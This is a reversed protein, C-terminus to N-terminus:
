NTTFTWEMHKGASTTSGKGGSTWDAVVKYVTKPKFPAKPILCWTGVPAIEPNSPKSPTSFHCEVEKKGDKGEFLKMVIDVTEGREDTPNTQITVPYGFVGAEDFSGPPGSPVPDPFENGIFATPVGTQNEYPYVVVFPKDYPAALSQMDMVQFEGEAGWGLRMVGPDTLPLRHYFSGMWTDIGEEFTMGGGGERWVIVSHTGAWHGETTYGEKDAYEEHADPWKKQEPHLTLYHAHLACQESLEPDFKLKWVGQIKDKFAKERIENMYALIELAEKPWANLNEKDIREAIGPLSGLLWDKWKGELDGITMGLAANYLEVTRGTANNSLQKYAPGLLEAEQLFEVISTCKHLDNGSIAGIAEVFSRAFAPDEGREALYRMWTRSGAIGAKAMRLLEERDRLEEGSVHTDGFGAGKEEKFILNPLTCGFCSLSVWNLHGATLPTPIGERMSCTWILLQTQVDSEIQALTVNVGNTTHFNGMFTNPREWALKADPEMGGAAALENGLKLYKERSDLMVWVTRGTIAQPDPWVTWKGSRLWVSLTWARLTERLIRETKEKTFNSRLEIRGRRAFTAKTGCTRQIIEDDTEGTEIPVELTKSEMLKTLIEGRRQRFSEFEKAVWSKGVKVHDLVAHAEVCEGDLYLIRRAFLKKDDGDPMANLLAVCQKAAARLAKAGEPFADKVKKTKALEDKCAKELKEHDAKPLGLKDLAFLLDKMERERGGKGLDKAVAQLPALIAVPATGPALPPAEAAPKQAPKQAAAPVLTLPLVLLLSGLRMTGKSAGSRAPPRTHLAGPGAGANERPTCRKM